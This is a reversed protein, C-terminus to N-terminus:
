QLKRHTWDCYSNQFYLIHVCVCVYMVCVKIQRDLAERKWLTSQNGKGTNNEILHVSVLAKYSYSPRYHHMLRSAEEESCECMWPYVCLQVNMNPITKRKHRAAEGKRVPGGANWDIETSTKKLISWTMRTSFKLYGLHRGDRHWKM